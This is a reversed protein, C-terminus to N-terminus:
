NLDAPRDPCKRMHRARNNSRVPLLCYPCQNKKALAQQVRAQEALRDLELQALLAQQQQQQEALAAARAAEDAAQQQQHLQEAHAKRLIKQEDLLSVLVFVLIMGSQTIQVLLMLASALHDATILWADAWAISLLAAFAVGMLVGSAVASGYAIWRDIRISEQMAIFVRRLTIFVLAGSGLVLLEIFTATPLAIWPDLSFRNILYHTSRYVAYIGALLVVFLPVLISFKGKYIHHLLAAFESEGQSAWHKVAALAM